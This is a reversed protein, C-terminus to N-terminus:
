AFVQIGFANKTFEGFIDVFTKEQGEKIPTLFSGSHFKVEAVGKIKL